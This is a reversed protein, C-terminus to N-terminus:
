PSTSATAASSSSTGRNAAYIAAGAILLLSGAIIITNELAVSVLAAQKVGAPHGPSLPIQTQGYAATSTIIGILAMALRFM